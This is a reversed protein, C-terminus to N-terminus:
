YTCSANRPDNCNLWAAAFSVFDSLNVYCDHSFDMQMYVGREACTPVYNGTRVVVPSVYTADYAVDGRPDAYFEIVNGQALNVNTLNAIAYVPAPSSLAPTVLDVVDVLGTGDFGNVDASFLSTRVGSVVTDIHAKTSAHSNPDGGVQYAGGAVGSFSCSISYAGDQPAVFRICPYGNLMPTFSWNPRPKFWWVQGYNFCYYVSFGADGDTGNDFEDFGDVRTLKRTHAAFNGIVGGNVPLYGLSWPGFSPPTQVAPLTRPAYDATADWTTGAAVQKTLTAYLGIVTGGYSGNAMAIFDVEDNVALTVSNVAFAADATGVLALQSFINVGNKQVYVDKTGDGRGDFVGSIDYTGAVTVKFRAVVCQKSGDGGDAVLPGPHMFVMGPVTVWGWTPSAKAIWPEGGSWWLDAFSETSHGTFETFAGGPTPESGFKWNNSGTIGAPLWDTVLDYSVAAVAGAVCFSSLLLVVFLKM